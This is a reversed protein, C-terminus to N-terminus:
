RREEPFRASVIEKSLDKKGGGLRVSSGSLTFLGYEQLLPKLTDRYELPLSEWNVWPPNGRSTVWM